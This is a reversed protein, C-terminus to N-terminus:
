AHRYDDSIDAVTGTNVWVNLCARLYPKVYMCVHM